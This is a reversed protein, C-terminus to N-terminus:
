SSRPDAAKATGGSGGGCASALAAIAVIGAVYLLRHPRMRADMRGQKPVPALTHGARVVTLAAPETSACAVPLGPSPSLSLVLITVFIFIGRAAGRALVLTAISRALPERIPSSAAPQRAPAAQGNAAKARAL